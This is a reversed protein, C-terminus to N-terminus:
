GHQAAKAQRKEEADLEDLLILYRLIVPAPERLLSQRTYGPLAKLLRLEIVEEPMEAVPNGRAISRAM